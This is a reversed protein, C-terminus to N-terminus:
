KIKDIIIYNGILEVKVPHIFESSGVGLYPPQLM